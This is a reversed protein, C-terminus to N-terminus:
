PRGEGTERREGPRVGAPRVVRIGARGRRDDRRPEPGPLEVHGFLSPYIAM